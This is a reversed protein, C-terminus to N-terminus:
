ITALAPHHNLPADSRRAISIRKRPPVGFVRKFAKSFAADSDYGVAKAVEFLKKDGKQLLGTAKQMRWSTLYELPTEGVLDKFRVAFASRSMGSVAALSEVTWRHEVKEHMSKLAVGIQPDFIARLLGSKCAESQSGIHARISHIFLMDALRNVVLESGPASDATESALMSLTTHLALSQAQDAKVLILPPLLRTLPKMSTAGFRFWGSIITTPAGGGGYEMVQSGNRPAVECFSRARTRPNDRLTYASGPALLFCDGGALPIPEPMGEVNLWCNGRSLMGFHAFHFPSTASEASLKDKPVGDVVDGDRKLGWPATAELRGHVVGVIQMTQFLDTIPDL